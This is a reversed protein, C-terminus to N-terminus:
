VWRGGEATASREGKISANLSICDKLQTASTSSSVEESLKQEKQAIDLTSSKIPMWYRKKRLISCCMCNPVLERSLLDIKTCPM